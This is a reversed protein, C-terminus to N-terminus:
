ACPGRRPVRKAPHPKVTRIWHPNTSEILALLEVLQQKYFGSVTIKKPDDDPPDLLEKLLSAKSDRLRPVRFFVSFVFFRVACFTPVNESIHTECSSRPLAVSIKTM